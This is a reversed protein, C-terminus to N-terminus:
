GTNRINQRWAETQEKREKKMKEFSAETAFEEWNYDPRGTPQPMSICVWKGKIGTLWQTFADADAVKPLTVIDATIGGTPTSPSWALQRGHLSVVRPSILDIHCIGREWGRWTGWEENKANIGWESFTDVAWDHAVKMQPTGVLRPGVVDMLEYALSELQSNEYAEKEMQSVVSGVTQAQATTFLVITCFLTLTFKIM